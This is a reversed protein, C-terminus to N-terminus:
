GIDPEKRLTRQPVLAVGDEVEFGLLQDQPLFWAADTGNPNTLWEDQKADGAAVWGVVRFTRTNERIVLICVHDTADERRVILRGDPLDTSKVQIYDHLDAGRFTNLTGSWYLGFLKAVAMEAHASEIDRGWKDAGPDRKQAGVRGSKLSESRRMIGATSALYLEPWSLVVTLDKEM